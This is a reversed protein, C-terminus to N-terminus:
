FVMKRCHIIQSMYHNNSNLFGQILSDLQSDGSKEASTAYSVSTDGESASAIPTDFWDNDGFGGLQGTAKKMQLFIGTILDIELNYLEKPVASQNTENMILPEIKKEQIFKIQEQEAGTATYGAISLQM